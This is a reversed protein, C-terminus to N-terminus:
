ILHYFEVSKSVVWEKTKADFAKFHPTGKHHEFAAEDVYLEYLFIREPDEAQAVDFRRCGPEKALSTKANESVAIAFDSMHNPHIEFWVAVVFM